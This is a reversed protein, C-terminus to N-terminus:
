AGRFLFFFALIQLDAKLHFKIKGIISTIENIRSYDLRITRKSQGKGFLGFLFRVEDLFAPFRKLQFGPDFGGILLDVPHNILQIPQRFLLYPDHLSGSDHEGGSRSVDNLRTPMKWKRNSIYFIDTEM